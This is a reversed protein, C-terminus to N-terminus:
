KAPAAAPQYVQQMAEVRTVVPRYGTVCYATVYSRIQDRYAQADLVDEYRLNYRDAINAFTHGALVQASIESFPKHTMDAIKAIMAVQGFSFGELRAQQIDMLDYSRTKSLLQYDQLPVPDGYGDVIIAANTSPIVMTSQAFVANGPVAFLAALAGTLCLTKTNM